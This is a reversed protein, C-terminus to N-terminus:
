ATLDREERHRAHLRHPRQQQRGLIVVVTRGLPPGRQEVPVGRHPREDLQQGRHDRPAAGLGAGPHKGRQATQRLHHGGADAPQAGYEARERGLM